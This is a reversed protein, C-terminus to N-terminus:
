SFSWINAMFPCTNSVDMEWWCAMVRRCFAAPRTSSMTARPLWGGPAGVVGGATAAVEVADEGDSVLATSLAGEATLSVDSMTTIM